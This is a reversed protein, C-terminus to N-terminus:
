SWDTSFSQFPAIIVYCLVLLYTNLLIPVMHIQIMYALVPTMDPRADLYFISSPHQQINKSRPSAVM